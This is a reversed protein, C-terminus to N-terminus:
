RWSHTAKLIAAAVPKAFRFYCDFAARVSSAGNVGLGESLRLAL